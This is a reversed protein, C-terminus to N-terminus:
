LISPPKGYKDWDPKGYYYCVCSFTKKTYDIRLAAGGNKIKFLIKPMDKGSPGLIGVSLVQDWSYQKVSFPTCICIGTEDIRESCKGFFLFFASLLLGVVPVLLGPLQNEGMSWILFGSILSLLLSIGSVAFAEKHQITVSPKEM